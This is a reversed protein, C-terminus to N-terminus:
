CYVLVLQVLVAALSLSQSCAYVPVKWAGAANPLYKVLVHAPSLQDVLM